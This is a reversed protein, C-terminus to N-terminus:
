MFEKIDTEKLEEINIKSLKLNITDEISEMKELTNRVQNKATIIDSKCRVLKEKQRNLKLAENPCFSLNLSSYMSILENIKEQYNNFKTIVQDKNNTNVKIKQGITKYEEIIYAYIQKLNNIENYTNNVKNKERETSSFFLRSHYDQWYSNANNLDNYINLFSNYFNEVEENFKDYEDQLSSVNIEM